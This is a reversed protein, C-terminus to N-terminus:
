TTPSASLYLKKPAKYSIQSLIFKLGKFVLAVCRVGSTSKVPSIRTIDILSTVSEFSPVEM